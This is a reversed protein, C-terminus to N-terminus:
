GAGGRRRARSSRRHVPAVDAVQLLGLVQQPLQGAVVVEGAQGVPRQEVLPELPGDGAVPAVAVAHRHHEAVEVPELGILSSCPWAAPSRTSDTIASRSRRTVRSVSVVARTPPSSNTITHSPTVSTSSSPLQGLPDDVRHVPGDRERPRGCRGAARACGPRCRSRCRRPRVRRGSTSGSRRSVSASVAIYRALAAPPVVATM